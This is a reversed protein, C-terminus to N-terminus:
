MDGLFSQSERRANLQKLESKIAEKGEGHDNQGRVLKRVWIETGAQRDRSRYEPHLNQEAYAICDIRQSKQVWKYHRVTLFAVLASSANTDYKSSMIVKKKEAKFITTYVFDGYLLIWSAKQFLTRSKMM